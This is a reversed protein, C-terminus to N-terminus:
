VCLRHGGLEAVDLLAGYAPTREDLAPWLGLALRVERLAELVAAPVDDLAAPVEDELELGTRQEALFAANAKFLKRDRVRDAAHSAEASEVAGAQARPEVAAM